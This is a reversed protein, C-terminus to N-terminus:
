MAASSRSLAVSANFCANVKDSYLSYSTLWDIASTTTAVRMPYRTFSPM